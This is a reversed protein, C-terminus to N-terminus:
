SNTETPQQPIAGTSALASFLGRASIGPPPRGCVIRARDAGTLSLAYFRRVTEAPLRYFREFTARRREPAFARFLMRNLLAAFRQQSATRRALAALTRPLEDGSATAVITAVRVALPFSYGTTPHFWGGQYGARVLGAVHEVVVPARAPLPLVGREKRAVGRVVLGTRSAYRLIEAEIAATDLEPGDSFYTDEVLVRTPALPLVYFFRLGDSQEVTADMLLPEVPASDPTVDLELGVFKQYGLAPHHAFRDPGRADIVVPARLVEGSALEVRGPEVCRASNGLLLELRGASALYSLHAHVADSTVASYPDAVTREYAPFRVRYNPWRRVVLPEVFPGAAEQVDLAHFCWVHNGGLRDAAEVIGVRAEPRHHALASAILANQLGGGVLLYDLSTM